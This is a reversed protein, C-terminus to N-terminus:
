NNKTLVSKLFCILVCIIIVKHLRLERIYNQETQRRIDGIVYNYGTGISLSGDMEKVLLEVYL